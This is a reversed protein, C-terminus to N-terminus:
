DFFDDFLDRFWDNFFRHTKKYKRYQERDVIGVPGEYIGGTQWCDYVRVALINEKGPHLLGSPIPYARLQSYANSNTSHMERKPMPGTKGIREGNLYTEDFDDIKGVLLILDNDQYDDPVKFAVRYWAYGDYNKFGQREWASPVRVDKWNSDDYQIEKWEVNDGTKLKWIAPLVIDPHFVNRQEYIGVHGSTIGGAQEDDYVRVAVVNNEGIKLIDSPIGYRRHTNYATSYDPPFFGTGGIPQGNIFVEDVDDITGLDLMLDKSLWSESVTFHKRYWGYGDYGEYGENEWESPVYIESWKSDNFTADAWCTEDGTQFKWDGRLNLLLRTDQAQLAGVPIAILLFLITGLSIGSIGSKM